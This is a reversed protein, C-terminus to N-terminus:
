AAEGGQVLVRWESDFTRVSCRSKRTLSRLTNLKKVM